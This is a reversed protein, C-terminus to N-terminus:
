SEEVEYHNRVYTKLDDVFQRAIGSIPTDASYYLSCPFPLDVSLPRAVVGHKSWHSVSFPEVISVGVGAAVLGYATQSYPTAVVQKPQVGRAEFSQDISGWPMSGTPLLSIFEVQHLDELSILKKKALRHGAPLACVMRVKFLSEQRLGPIDTFSISLALHAQRARIDSVMQLLDFINVDLTVAPHAELFTKVVPPMVNSALVAIASITLHGNSAGRIQSATRELDQLSTFAREVAAYFQLAEATPVVRGSKRHFLPFALWTELDAILRSVAPQGINLAEAGQTISGATMVARFAEIQRFRM